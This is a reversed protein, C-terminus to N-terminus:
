RIAFVDFSFAADLFALFNLKYITSLKLPRILTQFSYNRRRHSFCRNSRASRTKEEANKSSSKKERCKSGSGYVGICLIIVIVFLALTKASVESLRWYDSVFLKNSVFNSLFWFFFRFQVSMHLIIQDIYCLFKILVEEVLFM